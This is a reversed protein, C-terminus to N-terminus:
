EPKASRSQPGGVLTEHVRLGPCVQKEPADIFVSKQTHASDTHANAATVTDTGLLTLVPGDGTCKTALAVVEQECPTEDIPM